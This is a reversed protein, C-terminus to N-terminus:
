YSATVTYEGAYEGALQAANVHLVAGVTFEAEGAAGLDISTESLEFDTVSMPTSGADGSLSTDPIESLTVMINPSGTIKFKGATSDRGSSLSNAVTAERSGDGAKVTVENAEVTSFIEGFDLGTASDVEEIKVDKVITAKAHGVQTAQEVAGANSIGLVFVSMAALLFTKEYYKRM